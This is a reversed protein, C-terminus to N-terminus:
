ILSWDRKQPFDIPFSFSFTRNKLQYRLAFTLSRGPLYKLWMIEPLTNWNQSIRSQFCLFWGPEFLFWMDKNCFHTYYGEDHWVKELTYGGLTAKRKMNARLLVSWIISFDRGTKNVIWKPMTYCSYFTNKRGDIFPFCPMTM